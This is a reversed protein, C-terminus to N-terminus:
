RARLANLIVSADIVEQLIAGSAPAIFGFAAIAMLTLSSGLGILIGQKAVKLMRQGIMVADAAITIDDVLLVVDAAEASIGAGHAGMAVGVTAAALAPADNIGDGVMVLPDYKEKLRQLAEVKQGPLLDAQFDRIGAERAIARASTSNDGTLMVTEQVGLDHLKQIMAPVGARVQDSSVIVGSLKSDTAVFTLLKGLSRTENVVEKSAKEMLGDGLINDLFRESGIAIHEGNLDGEVGGGPTERFNRPVELKPFKELAKRAISQATVHSSLQGLCGAKYLLEESSVHDTSIIREVLPTGFTITGTKDFAMAKARGIQEIAAGTKVIIGQKAARNVGSIVAIPTALILPCPTAVVLVALITVPNQTILFGAAAVVLTIPTFYVAYHDALREIPPKERQAKRVLEVIKAYQSEQSPRDATMEIAGDINISGSLVHDGPALRKPLPEGTLASEDVESKGSLITGDVPVLDGPRVLLIDGVRVSAVGIEEIAGDAKKRRAIRPARSLLADLSSSARGLGYDEIAEGGSQMLVIVVGAFAQDMLIAAVIALMAVIDAAFHGRLMGRLTKWVIPTGGIVLTGLWVWRASLPDGLGLQLVAGVVLGAVAFIPIPYRRVVSTLTMARNRQLKAV